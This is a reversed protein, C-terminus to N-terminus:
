KKGPPRPSLCKEPNKLLTLLDKHIEPYYFDVIFWHGNNETFEVLFSPTDFRKGSRVGYIEAQYNQGTHTIKGVDYREDPDQTNLIPDFDLGVIDECAAQTARDEKLLQLLQPSFASSRYKLAFDWSVNSQIRPVYWKYFGEVFERPSMVKQTITAQAELSYPLLLLVFLCCAKM